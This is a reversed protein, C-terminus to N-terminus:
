ENVKEKPEFYKAEQGCQGDRCRLSSCFCGNKKVDGSVLYDVKSKNLSLNSCKAYDYDKTKFFVGTIRPACWKCDKCFKIDNM